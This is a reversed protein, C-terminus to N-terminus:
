VDRSSIKTETNREKREQEKPFPTKKSKSFYMYLSKKWLYQNKNTYYNSISVLDM